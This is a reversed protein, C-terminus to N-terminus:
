PSPAAAWGEGGQGPMDRLLVMDDSVLSFSDEPASRAMNMTARPMMAATLGMAVSM